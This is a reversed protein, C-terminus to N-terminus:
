HILYKNAISSAAIFATTWANQFNFGGTVADVDIVEGAFYLNSCRKSQMTKFDIESLTVGGSTVFEDKYTTKGSVAYEDNKLIEALTQVQVKSLDAYNLSQNMKSKYLFYMWLRQPIESFPNNDVQKKSATTKLDKLFEELNSKPIEPLWDILVQFSYNLENLKRAALASLKLIAPGSLGWHTILLPGSNELNQNKIKATVNKVSVGMLENINNGPINFTFLSPVPNVIKHGTNKLFEYGSIKPFGGTAIILYKAIYKKNSCTLEFSEDNANITQVNVQKHIKINNKEAEALFCNVIAASDNTAPFMRGDSEVKLDVGKTKFWNVCDAVSFRSFAGKLEREGRPYNKVLLSNEFCHHTVNCRGGGSIRVKALLKDTKELIAISLGQKQEAINIASFFGAAGGGVIIVDQKLIEM